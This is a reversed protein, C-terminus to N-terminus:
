NDYFMTEPYSGPSLPLVHLTSNDLTSSLRDPASFGSMMYLHVLNLASDGKKVLKLKTISASGTCKFHKSRSISAM